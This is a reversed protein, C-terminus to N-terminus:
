QDADEDIVEKEEMPVSEDTITVGGLVDEEIDVGEETGEGVEEEVGEETGELEQDSGEVRNFPIEMEANTVETVKEYSTVDVLREIKEENISGMRSGKLAEESAGPKERGTGLEETSLQLEEGTSRLDEAIMGPRGERSARKDERSGRKEGGFVLKEGSSKLRERSSSLKAGSSRLKEGSLRVKEGSLRLKEGSSRRPKEGSSRLAEESQELKYGGSRMDEGGTKVGTSRLREKFVSGKRSSSTGSREFEAGTNRRFEQKGWMEKSDDKGLGASARLANAVSHLLKLNLGEQRLGSKEVDELGWYESEHKQYWMRPKPSNRGLLEMRKGIVILGNWPTWMKERLMHAGRSGPELQLCERVWAQGQAGQGRTKDRGRAAKRPKSLQERMSWLPFEFPVEEEM